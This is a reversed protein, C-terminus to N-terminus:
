MIKMLEHIKQGRLELIWDAFERFAGHGGPARCIYHVESQIVPMADNPASTLSTKKLISILAYDNIDDGIYAIEELKLHLHETLEKVREYKDKVGLLLHAVLLKEARKELSGSTEATLFGCDIGANRLLEVGMGDRISFKKLSEGLESYYVGTDTLVGDCDSLLLKIRKARSSLETRTLIHGSKKNM